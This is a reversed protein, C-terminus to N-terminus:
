SVGPAMEDLGLNVFINGSVPLGIGEEHTILFLQQCEARVDQEGPDPFLEKDSM